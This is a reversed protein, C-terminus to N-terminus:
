TATGYIIKYIYNILIITACLIFLYQIWRAGHKFKFILHLILLTWVCFIPITAPYMKFSEIFKGEFLLVVSRQFGCGLCDIGFTKKIPCDFLYDRIALFM